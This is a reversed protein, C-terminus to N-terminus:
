KEGRLYNKLLKFQPKIYSADGFIMYDTAASIGMYVYPEIETLKRGLREALAAAYERYRRATAALVPELKEHYEEVTFVQVLFKMTAAMRDCNKQLDKTLRDLDDFNAKLPILERELRLAAEEACAVVLDDKSKFHYYIGANQLHLATSLERSTTHLLGKRTFVELCTDIIKQRRSDTEVSPEM